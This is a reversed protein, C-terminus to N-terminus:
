DTKEVEEKVFDFVVKALTDTDETEIGSADKAFIEKLSNLVDNSTDRNEIADKVVNRLDM